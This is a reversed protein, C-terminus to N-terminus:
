GVATWTTWGCRPNRCRSRVLSNNLVDLMLKRAKSADIAMLAQSFLDLRGLLMVSDRCIKCIAASNDGRFDAITKFDSALRGTLWM